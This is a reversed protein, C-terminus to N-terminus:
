KDSYLQLIREYKEDLFYSERTFRQVLKFWRILSQLSEKRLAPSTALQIELEFTEIIKDSQKATLPYSGGSSIRARHSNELALRLEQILNFAEANRQLKLLLQAAQPAQSSLFSELTDSDLARHNEPPDRLSEFLKRFAPIAIKDILNRRMKYFEPESLLFAFASYLHLRLLLCDLHKEEDLKEIDALEHITWDFLDYISKPQTPFLGLLERVQTASLNLPPVSLPFPSELTISDPSLLLWNILIEIRRRRLNLAAAILEPSSACAIAENAYILRSLYEKRLWPADNPNPNESPNPNGLSLLTLPPLRDIHAYTSPGLALIGQIMENPLLSRLTWKQRYDSSYVLSDLSHYDMGSCTASSLIAYLLLRQQVDNSSTSHASDPMSSLYEPVATRIEYSLLSNSPNDLLSRWLSLTQLSNETKM